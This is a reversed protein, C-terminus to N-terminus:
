IAADCKIHRPWKATQFDIRRAGYFSLSIVVPEGGFPRMAGCWPWEASVM